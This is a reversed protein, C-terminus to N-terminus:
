RLYGTRSSSTAASTFFSLNNSSYFAGIGMLPTTSFGRFGALIHQFM